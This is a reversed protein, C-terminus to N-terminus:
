RHTGKKAVKADQLSCLPVFVIPQNLLVSTPIVVSVLSLFSVGSADPTEKKDKTETTIGVETRKFWGM